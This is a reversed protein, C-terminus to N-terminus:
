FNIGGTITLPSNYPSTAKNYLLDYTISVNSNIGAIRRNYGGGIPLRHTSRSTNDATRYSLFEYQAEGYVGAMIDYRGFARAGLIIPTSSSPRYQLTPGVGMQAKPMPRYGIYPNADIAYNTGDTTGHVGGGIFVTKPMGPIHIGSASQTGGGINGNTNNSTNNTTNNTPKTSGGVAAKPRDNNTPTNTKTSGNTAPQQPTTKVGGRTQQALASFQVLLLCVFLTLLYNKM